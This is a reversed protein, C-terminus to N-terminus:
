TSLPQDRFTRILTDVHATVAPGHMTAIVQIDLSSIKDLAQMLHRRDDPQYGLDRASSLAVSSHDQATTIETGM